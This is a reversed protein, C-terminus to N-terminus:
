QQSREESKIAVARDVDDQPIGKAFSGVNVFGQGVTIINAAAPLGTVYVAEASSTAVDAEHFEVIGEENLVKIGVRGEDDLTLLSPAVKHAFVKNGPIRLEATVGSRYDGASNDVELEVRFTRTAEDAVPAVYRLIGTVTEGTALIAEAEQGRKVQAADFESVAAAVIISRDDVYTAVPDGPSVFDGVEVLREQLAGDFPARILAYDADLEARKLEARAAELLAAGEQLQSESVYSESKLRERAAFELERQRVTARAQALRAERDREDLRVIVAGSSVREGRDVGTEVVRGDTEANIEVTRAPATSGNIKVIRVVEEAVQSRVRVSFEGATPSAESAALAPAAEHDKGSGSWLWVGIIAIIAVSLYWSRRKPSVKM